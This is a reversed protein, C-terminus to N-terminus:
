LAAIMKDNWEKFGKREGGFMKLSQVVKHDMVSKKHDKGSTMKTKLEPIAQKIVENKMADWSKNLQDRLMGIQTVAATAEDSTATVQSRIVAIEQIEMVVKKVRGDLDNAKDHANGSAVELTSVRNDMVKEYEILKGNIDKLSADNKNTVEAINTVVEDVKKFVENLKSRLDGIDGQMAPVATETVVQMQSILTNVQIQLADLTTM